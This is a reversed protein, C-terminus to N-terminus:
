KIRASLEERQLGRLFARRLGELLMHSRTPYDLADVDCGEVGKAALAAMFEVEEESGLEPM